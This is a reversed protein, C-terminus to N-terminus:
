LNGPPNSCYDDICHKGKPCEGKYRCGIICKESTCNNDLGCDSQKNCNTPICRRKACFEGEQCDQSNKCGPNFDNDNM